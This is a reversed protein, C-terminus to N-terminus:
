CWRPSAKVSEGQPTEPKQKSILINDPQGLVKVNVSCLCLFEANLVKELCLTGCLCSFEFRSTPIDIIFLILPETDSLQTDSLLCTDM